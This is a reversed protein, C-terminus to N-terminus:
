VGLDVLLGRWARLFPLGDHGQGSERAKWSLFSISQYILRKM